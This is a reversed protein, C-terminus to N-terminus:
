RTTKKLSIPPRRVILDYTRGGFVEENADRRSQPTTGTQSTAAPPNSAGSRRDRNVQPPNRLPCLRKRAPIAVRRAPRRRRSQCESGHRVPAATKSEAHM